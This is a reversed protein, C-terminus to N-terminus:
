GPSSPGLDSQLLRGDEHHSAEGHRPLADVSGPRMVSWSYWGTATERRIQAGACSMKPIRALGARCWSTSPEAISRPATQVVIIVPTPSTKTIFICKELRPSVRALFGAWRATTGGGTEIALRRAPRAWM